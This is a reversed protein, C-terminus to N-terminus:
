SSSTCFTFTHARAYVSEEPNFKNDNEYFSERVPVLGEKTVQRVM